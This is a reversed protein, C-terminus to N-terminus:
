IMKHDFLIDFTKQAWIGNRNSHIKECWSNSGLFNSENGLCKDFRTKPSSYLKTCRSATFYFSKNGSALEGRWLTEQNGKHRMWRPFITYNCVSIGPTEKHPHERMATFALQYRGNTLELTISVSPKEVYMIHMWTAQVKEANRFPKYQVVHNWLVNTYTRSCVSLYTQEPKTPTAQLLSYRIQHATAM